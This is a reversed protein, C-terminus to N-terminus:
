TLVPLEAPKPAGTLVELGTDTLVVLDEIRVGGMDPLYIGPEVTIAMGPLLTDESTRSLRPAEHVQVGVGHGTGHGFYDGYGADAITDRVVADAERGTMGAHIRTLGALQAALCARYIERATDTAHAVAFTRTMDACYHRTRAGMDVVVLDGPALAVDRPQAHPLAAHAGAAIIIDFAAAQAGHTRMYWEAELALTRETVGPRALACVHAYAGDTIAVAERIRALEDADKHLRLTEVLGRAPELAYPADDALTHYHQVSVDADDFGVRPVGLSVLEERAAVLPPHLSQVFRWAPAEAAAQLTYRFDSILAIEDATVLLVGSSGTFGSLYYINAPHSVLLAPLDRDALSARLRELRSHM